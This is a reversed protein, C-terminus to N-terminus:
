EGMIAPLKTPTFLVPPVNVEQEAAVKVPEQAKKDFLDEDDEDSDIDM